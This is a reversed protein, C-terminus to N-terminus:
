IEKANEDEIRVTVQSNVKGNLVISVTNKDPDYVPPYPDKLEAALYDEKVLAGRLREVDATLKERTYFEGPKLKLDKRIKSADFGTINIAFDEVRAQENPAVNFTVNNRADRQSPPTYSYEVTAKFFGRERLYNQIADASQQVARETVVANTTLLNLRLLLEAESVKEGTTAGVNITVQDILTTRRIVFRLIVTGAAPPTQSEIVEIRASAVRKSDFLAQLAERNKVASFKASSNEPIVNRVISEFQDIVAQTQPSKDLVIQIESIPQGEYSTQGLALLPFM